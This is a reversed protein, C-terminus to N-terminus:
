SVLIARLFFVKSSFYRFDRSLVIVFKLSDCLMYLCSVFMVACVVFEFLFILFAVGISHSPLVVISSRSFRSNACFSCIFLLSSSDFLAKPCSRIVWWCVHTETFLIYIYEWNTIKIICLHSDNHGWRKRKYLPIWRTCRRHHSKEAISMDLFMRKRISHCCRNVNRWFRDAGEHRCM